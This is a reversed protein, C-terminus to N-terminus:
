ILKNQLITTLQYTKIHKTKQFRGKGSAETVFLFYISLAIFFM